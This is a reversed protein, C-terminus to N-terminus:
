IKRTQKAQWNRKLQVGRNGELKEAEAKLGACRQEFFAEDQLAPENM